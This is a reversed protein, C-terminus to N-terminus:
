PWPRGAVGLRGRMLNGNVHFSLGKKEEEDPERGLKEALRALPAGM